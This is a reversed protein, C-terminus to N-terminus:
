APRGPSCAAVADLLEKFRFPKRIIFEAGFEAAARLYDVKSDDAGSIAIVRVDPAERRLHRMVEFGDCDPMFLDTVVIDTPTETFAEILQNGNYAERADYGADALGDAIAHCLHEDDDVILVSVM